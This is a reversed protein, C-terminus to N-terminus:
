SISFSNELLLPSIKLKPIKDSFYFSSFLTCQAPNPEVKMDMNTKVKKLNEIETKLTEVNQALEERKNNWTELASSFIFFLNYTYPHARSSLLSFATLFYIKYHHFNFIRFYSFIQHFTFILPFLKINPFFLFVFISSLFQYNSFFPFLYGNQVSKKSRWIRRHASPIRQKCPLRPANPSKPPRKTKNAFAAQGNRWNLSTEVASFFFNKHFLQPSHHHYLKQLHEITTCSLSGASFKSNIEHLYM